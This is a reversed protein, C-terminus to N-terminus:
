FIRSINYAVPLFLNDAVCLRNSSSVHKGLSLLATREVLELMRPQPNREPLNKQQM